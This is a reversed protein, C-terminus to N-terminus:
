RRLYQVHRYLGGVWKFEVGERGGGDKGDGWVGWMCHGSASRITTSITTWRGLSWTTM